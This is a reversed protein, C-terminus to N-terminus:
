FLSLQNASSTDAVSWEDDKVRDKIESSQWQFRIQEESITSEASIGKEKLEDLVQQLDIREEDQSYLMGDLALQAAAGKQNILEWKRTDVTSESMVIYITVPRRSTLRHVRAVFQDYTSYDWPLGRLIVVNATDLNHGLQMSYVSACLVSAGDNRFAEVVAARKSPSKTQYKGDNEETIHVAKVGKNTLQKAVWPGYAMLSSGILVKDGAKAHEEALELVKLNSPTWNSGRPYYGDPESEPLVSSFELKWLQGLIASSREVLNPYSCIPLDPHTEIFYTAFGDLWDQYMRLQETGLPCIVPVLKRPVLEEGTEEKRRRIISSCLLRWLISLNTVEPLIRGSSNKRGDDDLTYESVAFEKAFKMYGGTYDFPFKVSRNGLAWWLLWFADPIYNKIPTGTLLLKFRARIGRVSLSMLSDNSKIKTGEDIIVTGRKFVTTLQSYAAKVKLKIHRYSCAECIGRSPYWKGHQAPEGCQPCFESSDLLIYDPAKVYDDKERDYVDQGARPNPHLYSQHPLLQFARGNRSLAEYYTIFWGSKVDRLYNRAWRAQPIDRIVTLERNFFRRCERQWQPVLDQPVIFLAKDEAGLQVSARAFALGGLTKGLGQEWSLLGGHKLLLRALDERQFTRFKWEHNAEISDLIALMSAMDDPFRSAVDRPDPLLFHDIIYQIDEASETFEHDGIRIELVKWEKLKEVEVLEGEKTLKSETYRSSTVRSRASVPYSEGTHFEREPDDM